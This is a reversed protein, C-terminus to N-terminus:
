AVWGYQNDSIIHDVHEFHNELFRNGNLPLDIIKQRIQTLNSCTRAVKSMFM